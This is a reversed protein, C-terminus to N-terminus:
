PPTGLCLVINLTDGFDSIEEDLAWVAKGVHETNNFDWFWHSGAKVGLTLDLPWLTLDRSVGTEPNELKIGGGVGAHAIGTEHLPWLKLKLGNSDTREV